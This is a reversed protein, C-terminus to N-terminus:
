CSFLLLTWGSVGMGDGFQLSGVNAAFRMGQVGDCPHMASAARWSEFISFMSGFSVCSICYKPHGFLYLLADGMDGQSGTPFPLDECYGRAQQWINLPMGVRGTVGGDSGNLRWATVHANDQFLRQLSGIWGADVVNDADLNVLFHKRDPHHEACEAALSHVTNKTVSSLFDMPEGVAVRLFGCRMFPELRTKVWDLLEQYEQDVGTLVALHFTMSRRYEMTVLLNATLVSKLQHGRGLCTVCFHVHVLRPEREKPFWDLAAAADHHTSEHIRSDKGIEQALHFCVGFDDILHHTEYSEYPSVMSRRLQALVAVTM